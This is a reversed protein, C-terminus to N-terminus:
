EGQYIRWTLGLQLYTGRKYYQMRQDTERNLKGDGNADQLLLTEQNFLDTINLRVDFNHHKGVTRIISLDVQHRPMEYVEPIGPVGVIVVRPGIVNYNVNIKFRGTDAEYYIGANIIWPSQGMMPRKSGASNNESFRIESKIWAANAVVGLHRIIFVDVSDFKKRVEVEAGYGIALPANGWTFSRTGGSGVGPVFYMEIPNKFKKYFLAVTFNEGPAPYFEYRLDFNDVEANKLSDNGSNISNFIFDYFYFPAIERFEPRNLTKGYSARILMRDNLNWAVNISPLINLTDIQNIATDEMNTHSSTLRQLNQEFRVGPSIRIRENDTSDAGKFHGLPFTFMVYGAKMENVAVYRDSANTAEGLKLGNSDNINEPAFIEWVPMVLLSANSYTEISAAKYGINRVTFEREKKEFYFGSKFTFTYGPKKTASDKGLVIAQTYNATAAWTDENVTMFIRGLYSPQVQSSIYVFYPDSAPAAFDKNYRARRWDPDTRRSMSYALTWDFVTNKNNFQHSGGLQGTYIRRQTYRYSYQKHYNGEEKNEGTRLITENDGMQNYIHKLTIRQSGNHGFKIANNQILAVRVSQRAIRDDFDFITDSSNTTPNFANYDLRYSNYNLFTNSYNIGTVNGFQIGRTPRLSDTKSLRYNWTANFRTDAPAMFTDVGWNNSMARGWTTLAAPDSISSVDAPFGDPLARSSAGAAYLDRSNSRNLYMDRYTTQTRYGYSYNVSLSSKSPIDITNIKVVGGSFEGPLDASPTQFIVFSEIMGAPVLDFSFTRIDTEASPAIVNNLLVTNYRESLGRIIVFRNDVLTVGPLTRAIGGADTANTKEIEDKTKVVEGNNGNKVSDLVPAITGTPRDAYKTFMPRELTADLVFDLSTNQGAVVKVGTITVPEYGFYRCTVSYVGPAIAVKYKGDFDTAAGKKTSDVTIIAGIVLGKAGSLPIETVTGSISGTQALGTATLFLGIIAGLIRM